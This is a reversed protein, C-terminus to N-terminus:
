RKNAIQTYMQTNAIQTYMYQWRAVQQLLNELDSIDLHWFNCNLTNHVNGVISINRLEEIFQYIVSLNQHDFNM